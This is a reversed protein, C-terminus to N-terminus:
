AWQTGQQKNYQYDAYAYNFGNALNEWTQHAIPFDLIDLPAKALLSGNSSTSVNLLDEGSTGQEFTFTITRGAGEPHGPLAVFTISTSGIYAVCVPFSETIGALKENLHLTQNVEFDNTCGALPFVWSCDQQFFIALTSPPVGGLGL